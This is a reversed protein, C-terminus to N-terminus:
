AQSGFYLPSLPDVAIGGVRVEVVLHPVTRPGVSPVRGLVAGQAVREGAHVTPAAVGLLDVELRFRGAVELVIEQGVAPGERVARVIADAPARVPAGAVAGLLLGDMQAKQGTLPDIGPGFPMLVAGAVPFRLPPTPAPPPEVRTGGSLPPWRWGRGDLGGRLLGEVRGILDAAGRPTGASTTALAAVTRRAGTLAPSPAYRLGVLAAAVLGALLWRGAGSGGAPSTGWGGAV